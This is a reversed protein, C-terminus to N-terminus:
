RADQTTRLVNARAEPTESDAYRPMKEVALFAAELSPPLPLPTMRKLCSAKNRPRM